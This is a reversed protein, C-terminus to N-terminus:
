NDPCSHLAQGSSLDKHHDTKKRKGQKGTIPGKMPIDITITM